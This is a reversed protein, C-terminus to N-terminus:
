RRRDRPARSSKRSHDIREVHDLVSGLLALREEPTAARVAEFDRSGLRVDAYVGNDDEHFHLFPRSRFHFNPPDRGVDVLGDVARLAAVLEDHTM